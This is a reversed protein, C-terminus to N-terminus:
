KGCQLGEIQSMVTENFLPLSLQVQSRSNSSVPLCVRSTRKAKVAAESPVSDALRAEAQAALLQNKRIVLELQKGTIAIDLAKLDAVADAAEAGSGAHVCGQYACACLRLRYGLFDVAAHLQTVLGCRPSCIRECLLHSVHATSYKYPLLSLSHHAQPGSRPCSQTMTLGGGPSHFTFPSLKGGGTALSHRVIGKAESYVAILGELAAAQEEPTGRQQAAEVGPELEAARGVCAKLREGFVAYSADRWQLYSPGGAAVAATPADKAESQLARLKEQM